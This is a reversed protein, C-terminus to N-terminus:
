PTGGTDQRLSQRLYAEIQESTLPPLHVQARVENLLAELLQLLARTERSVRARVPVTLNLHPM